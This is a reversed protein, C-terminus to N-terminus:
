TDGLTAGIAEQWRAVLANVEPVTMVDIAELAEPDAVQELIAIVQEIDGGSKLANRLVGFRIRTPLHCQEGTDPHEFTFSDSDPLGTKSPKSAATAKTTATTGTTGRARTSRTSM